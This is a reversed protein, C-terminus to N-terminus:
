FKTGFNKVRLFSFQVKRTFVFTTFNLLLLFHCFWIINVTFNDMLDTKTNNKKIQNKLISVWRKPSSVATKSIEVWNPCHTQGEFSNQRKKIKQPRLHKLLETTHLFWIHLYCKAGVSYWILIVMKIWQSIQSTFKITWITQYQFPRTKFLGPTLVPM